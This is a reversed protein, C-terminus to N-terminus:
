FWRRRYRRCFLNRVARRSPAQRMLGDARSVASARIRILVQDVTPTPLPRSVPALVEPAGYRTVEWANFTTDM